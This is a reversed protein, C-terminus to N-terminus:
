FTAYHGYPLTDTSGEKLFRKDDFPSLALKCQKISYIQHLYSRILRQTRYIEKFEELCRLYDEFQIYKRVVNTKLGKVKKVNCIEGCKISYMKSRLGVFETMVKGNNENSARSIALALPYPSTPMGSKINCYFDIYLPNFLGKKNVQPISYINNLQYDSTDFKNLNDKIISYFDECQVDYILSDTDTYLLKCQKIDFKKLMFNYHFDYVCTKSIDLICMGVYLPKNFVIETKKLEVAVLNEDFISSSHFNPSSIYNKAGYRGEWKTFLKVIRHKRINEM